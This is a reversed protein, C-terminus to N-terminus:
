RKWSRNAVSVVFVVVPSFLGSKAILFSVGRKFLDDVKNCVIVSRHITIETAKM